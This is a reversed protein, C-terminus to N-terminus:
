LHSEEDKIPYVISDGNKLSKGVKYSQQCEDCYFYKYLNVDVMLRTCQPCFIHNCHCNRCYGSDVYKTNKDLDISDLEFLTLQNPDVYENDIAVETVVRLEEIFHIGPLSNWDGNYCDPNICLLTNELYEEVLLTNYYEIDEQLGDTLDLLNFLHKHYQINVNGIEKLLDEHFFVREETNQTKSDNNGFDKYNNSVFVAFAPLPMNDKLFEISAFLIAADPFNNKSGKFPAKAKYMAMEALKLKVSESISIVLSSELLEEVSLIHTKNAEILNTYYAEIKKNAEKFLDEGLIGKQRFLDGLANKREKTLENLVENAARKNRKWEAKIIPNSLIVVERKDVKEKLKEYLEFHVTSGIKKKGIISNYGNAMYVWINTDLILYIM